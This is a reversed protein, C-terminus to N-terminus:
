IMGLGFTIACIMGLGFTIAFPTLTMRWVCILWSFVHETALCSGPTWFCDPAVDV